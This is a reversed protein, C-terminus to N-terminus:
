GLVWELLTTEMISAFTESLDQPWDQDALMQLNHRLFKRCLLYFKDMSSDYLSMLLFCLLGTGVVIRGGYGTLGM